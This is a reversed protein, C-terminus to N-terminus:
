PPVALASAVPGVSISDLSKISLTVKRFGRFPLKYRNNNCTIGFMPGGTSDVQGQCEARVLLYYVPLKNTPVM